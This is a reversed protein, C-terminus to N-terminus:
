LVLSELTTLWIYTKKANRYTANQEHKTQVILDTDGNDNYERHKSKVLERWYPGEYEWLVDYDEAYEAYTNMQRVLRVGLVDGYYVGM